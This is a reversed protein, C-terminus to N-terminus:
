QNIATCPFDSCPATAQATTIASVANLIKEATASSDAEPSGSDTAPGTQLVTATKEPNEASAPVASPDATAPAPNRESTPNSTAVTNTPAPVGDEDTNLTPGADPTGTAVTPGATKTSTEPNTAGEGGSLMQDPAPPEVEEVITVAILAENIARSLEKPTRAAQFTGGTNESICSLRPHRSKHISFAIVHVFLRPDSAKLAAATACPDPGCNDLGDSLLVINRQGETKNLLAAAANLSRAIPTKGNPVLKRVAKELSRPEIKGPKVITQIDRCSVRSRHGYAIIGLNLNDQHREFNEALANRAIVVKNRRKIQGWMSNSSDIILVATENATAPQAMSLSVLCVLFLCAFVASVQRNLRVANSKVAATRDRM